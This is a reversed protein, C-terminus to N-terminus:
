YSAGEEARYHQSAGTPVPRRCAPVSHQYELAMIRSALGSSRGAVRRGPILVPSQDLAAAVRGYGLGLVAGYILHGALSLILTVTTIPFLLEQGHPSLLVTGILGLWVLTGYLVGSSICRLKIPAASRVVAFTVGLGGGDGLYRYLYGLVPDPRQRDVVWGGIRPIFDGWIGALVFPARFCDYLTVACLGLALGYLAVRGYDRHFSVASLALATLPLIIFIAGLHLPVWELTAASLAMIPALGALSVIVPVLFAPLPRVNTM